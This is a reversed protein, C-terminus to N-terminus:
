RLLMIHLGIYIVEWGSGDAGPVRSIKKRRGGNPTWSRAVPRRPHLAKEVTAFGEPMETVAAPKVLDSGSDWPRRFSGVTKIKKHVIAHIM